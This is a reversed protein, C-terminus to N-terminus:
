FRLGIYPTFDQTGHIVNDQLPSGGQEDYYRIRYQLRLTLDMYETIPFFMGLSFMWAVSRSVRLSDSTDGPTPSIDGRGDDDRTGFAGYALEFYAQKYHIRVM